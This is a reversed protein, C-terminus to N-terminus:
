LVVLWFLGTLVVTAVLVMKCSNYVADIAYGRGTDWVLHRVGTALHYFLSVSVLFMLLGGLWSHLLGEARAFAEPGAALALLWYVLFLSAVSLVVGSARHGFSMVMILHPKYIQAHPSLPRHDTQM